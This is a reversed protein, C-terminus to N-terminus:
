RGTEADDPFAFLALRVPRSGPRSRRPRTWRRVLDLYEENFQALEAVTLRAFSRSFLAAERWQADLDTRSAYARVSAVLRSMILDIATQAQDPRESLAPDKFRVDRSSLRWYVERGRSREDDREILGAKGLERLHYSVVGTNSSLSRALIASTASGRGLEDLLQQRVKSALARLVV